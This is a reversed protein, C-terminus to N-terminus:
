QQIGCTTLCADDNSANGDDCAEVGGGPGSTCTGADSCLFGDGCTATACTNPCSDNNSLNGDDCTENAGLIGDGCSGCGFIAIAGSNLASVYLNGGDPSFGLLATFDLATGDVCQGGTRTDSICGFQDSRQTLEGTAPNRNFIAVADSATTTVIVLLGDPSVVIGDAGNLAKGLACTGGFPSVCGATGAKQTLKGTMPDRDFIVVAQSLGSAVYVNRNDPSVAVGIAGNLARGDVCAGATGDDSICGDTGAKQTLKGTTTDRDFVDVADSLVATAYLNRGDPSVVVATVRDLAVGDICDGSSGDDSICGDTGGKQTLAGTSTDRDFVAVAKGDFTAGTYVNKGDPSVTVAVIDNIGRGDVCAGSSGDDSICGATGAKQTLVGTTTNRDFITVASSNGAVAFYVNKGDPSVAAQFPADFDTGDICTGMSGDDSICGDPDAKKTLTGTMPNRDFIVAKSGTTYVNKGDPSVTASDAFALGTATTCAGGSGTDSQCGATGALQQLACPKKCSSSCGDTEDSNGDDCEEGLDVVGNGCQSEYAGIDCQAFQPRTVGRQDTAVMVGCGNTANPIANLAPSGPLLAITKTAGGNDQPGMFDLHPDTNPQSNNGGSFGCSTGDEVNYGGDTVTTDCNGGATNGAVITNKVTFTGAEFYLGGGSPAANATITCNTVTMLGDSWLGGGEDNASNDFFTSNVVEFTGVNYDSLGGGVDSSNGSFTSSSVSAMGGFNEIGGGVGGSNQSFTTDSASLTGSSYIGGGSGRTGAMDYGGGGLGTQNSSFVSTAVVLTGSNFIGGGAGGNGGLTVGHGGDGTKNQAVTDNTLHLTGANHVAGGSGGPASGADDAGNPTYGGSLTLHNLTLTAGSAIQLLRFRPAGADRTITANNGNITLDVGNTIVPLGNTDIGSGNDATTLTYPCSLTLDIVQTGGATVANTIATILESVDCGVTTAAPTPAPRFLLVSVLLITSLLRKERAVM